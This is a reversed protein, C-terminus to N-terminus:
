PTVEAVRDTWSSRRAARRAQRRILWPKVYFM